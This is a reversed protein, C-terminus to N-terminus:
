TPSQTTSAALFQVSQVKTLGKAGRGGRPQAECARRLDPVVEHVILYWGKKQWVFDSVSYFPYMPVQVNKAVRHWKLEQGDETTQALLQWKIVVFEIVDM